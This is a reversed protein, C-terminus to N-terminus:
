FPTHPAVPLPTVPQGFTGRVRPPTVLQWLAVVRPLRFPTPPAVPLPLPSLLPELEWNRGALGVQVELARTEPVGPAVSAYEAVIANLRVRQACTVPRHVVNLQAPSISMATFRLSESLREHNSYMTLYKYMNVNSPLIM